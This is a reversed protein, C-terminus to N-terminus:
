MILLVASNNDELIQKIAVKVDRNFYYYYILIQNLIRVMARIKEKLEKVQNELLKERM